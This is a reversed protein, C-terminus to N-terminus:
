RPPTRGTPTGGSFRARHTRSAGPRRRRRGLRPLRPRVAPAPAPQRHPDDRDPQRLRLVPTQRPPVSRCQVAADVGRTGPEGRAPRLRPQFRGGARGRVIAPGTGAVYENVVRARPLSSEIAIASFGHAEVLRRFLRNRLLLIEEGGHLAEGFGLLAVSDDFVRDVAADLTEPSDLSFPVAEHLIWEDLTTYTPGPNGRPVASKKM